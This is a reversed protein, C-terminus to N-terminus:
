GEWVIVVGITQTQDDFPAFQVTITSKEPLPHDLIISNPQMEGAITTLGTLGETLFETPEWSASDCKLGVKGGATKVTEITGRPTALALVARGGKAAPIAITTEDRWTNLTGAAATGKGAKMYTQISTTQGLKWHFSIMLLGTAANDATYYAHITSGSPLSKRCYIRLPKIRSGGTGLLEQRPTYFEFPSWDVSDNTLEILGGGYVTTALTTFVQVEVYDLVGGVPCKLGSAVEARTTHDALAATAIVGSARKASPKASM